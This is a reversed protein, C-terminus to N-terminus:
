PLLRVCGHQGCQGRSAALRAPLCKGLRILAVVFSRLREMHEAGVSGAPQHSAARGDAFQMTGPLTFRIGILPRRLFLKVTLFAVVILNLMMWPALSMTVVYWVM